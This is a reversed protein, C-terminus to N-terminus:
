EPRPGINHVDAPLGTLGGLGVPDLDGAVQVVAALQPGALLGPLGHGVQALIYVHADGVLLVGLVHEANLSLGGVDVGALDVM